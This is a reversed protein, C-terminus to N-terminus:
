IRKELDATLALMWSGCGYFLVSAILALIMDRVRVNDQTQGTNIPELRVTPHAVYRKAQGLM